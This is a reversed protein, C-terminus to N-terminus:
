RLSWITLVTRCLTGCLLTAIMRDLWALQEPRLRGTTSKVEVLLTEDRLFVVLDPAGVQSPRPRVIVPSGQPGTVVRVPNIRLYPIRWAELYDSIARLTDGELCHTLPARKRKGLAFLSGARYERAKM